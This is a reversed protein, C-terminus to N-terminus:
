IQEFIIFKNERKALTVGSSPLVASSASASPTSAFLANALPTAESFFVSASRCDEQVLVEKGCGVSELESDLIGRFHELMKRFLHM